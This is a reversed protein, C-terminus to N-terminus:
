SGKDFAFATAITADIANGGNQLIDRGVASAIESASVVMGNRAYVPIRGGKAWIPHFILIILILINVIMSYFKM